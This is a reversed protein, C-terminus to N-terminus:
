WHATEDARKWMRTVSHEKSTSSFHRTCPPLSACNIKKLRALLEKGKGGGSTCMFDQISSSAYQRLRSKLQAPLLEPALIVVLQVAFWQELMQRLREVLM